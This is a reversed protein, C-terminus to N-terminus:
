IYYKLWRKWDEFCKQFARKPIALLEQKSVEKLEEITAFNKVKMPTKLKPFLIFHAPALDPSYLPQPMIVTKNKFFTVCLCQPTLQHLIWSQNKWLGTRKQRIAERLRTMVELYYEKNDERGQPLFEYHVVGNCDFFVTLFVNM